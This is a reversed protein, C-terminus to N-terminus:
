GWGRVGVTLGWGEGGVGRIWWGSLSVARGGGAMWGGVGLECWGAGGEVVVGGAGSLVRGGAWGVVWGGVESPSVSRIGRGVVVVGSAMSPADCECGGSVVAGVGRARTTRKLSAGGVMEVYVTVVGGALILGMSSAWLPEARLALRSPIGRGVAAARAATPVNMLWM